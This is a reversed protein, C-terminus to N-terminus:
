VNYMKEVPKFGLSELDKLAARQTAEFKKAAAGRREGDMYIVEPSLNSDIRAFMVQAQEATPKESWQDKGGFFMSDMRNHEAVITKLSM